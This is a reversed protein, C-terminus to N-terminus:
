EGYQSREERICYGGGWTTQLKGNRVYRHFSSYPWESIQKVFGHKVPNYHIYEVHNEYDREDRILNSGIVDNGFAGNVKRLGVRNLRENKLIRRLFGAKILSWRMPYDADGVPLTWMAHLHDPLDVMADIHFSHSKKVKKMVARLDDIFDVLLTRKRETLNVTFFYTGGSVDSRRYRM